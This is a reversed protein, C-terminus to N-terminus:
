LAGDISSIVLKLKLRLKLKKWVLAGGPSVPARNQVSSPNKGLKAVALSNKKIKSMIEIQMITSILFLSSFLDRKRMTKYKVMGKANQVPFNIEGSIKNNKKTAMDILINVLYSFVANIITPIAIPIFNVARGANTYMNREPKSIDIITLFVFNATRQISTKVIV